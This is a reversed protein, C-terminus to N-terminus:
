VLVGVALLLDWIGICFAGIIAVYYYMAKGNKTEFGGFLKLLPKKLFPIMMLSGALGSITVIFFAAPNVSLLSPINEMTSIGYWYIKVSVPLHFAIQTIIHSLEHVFFLISSILLFLTLRDKREFIRSRLRILM